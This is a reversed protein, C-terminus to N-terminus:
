EHARLHTYSVTSKASTAQACCPNGGPPGGSRIGGFSRLVVGSEFARLTLSFSAFKWYSSTRLSRGVPALESSASTSIEGRSPAGRTPQCRERMETFHCLSQFGLVVYTM